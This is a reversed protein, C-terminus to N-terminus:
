RARWLRYSSVNSIDVVGADLARNMQAPTGEVLEIEPLEGDHAASVIWDYVPAVNLYAIEGLRAVNSTASRQTAPHSPTHPATM